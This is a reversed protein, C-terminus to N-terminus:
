TRAAMLNTGTMADDRLGNEASQVMLITELRHGCSGVSTPRLNQPRCWAATGSRSNLMGKM